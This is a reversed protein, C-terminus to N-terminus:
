VVVGSIIVAVAIIPANISHSFLIIIISTIVNLRRLRTFVAIGAFVAIVINRATTLYFDVYPIIASLLNSQSTYSYSSYKGPSFCM